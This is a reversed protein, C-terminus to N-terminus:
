SACHRPGDGRQESCHHGARSFRPAAPLRRCLPVGACCRCPATAQSSPAVGCALRAPPAPATREAALYM